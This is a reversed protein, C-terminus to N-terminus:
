KQSYVFRVATCVPPAKGDVLSPRYRGNGRITNQIKSDYAPFGTSKLQTVASVSGEASVCLKYSGMIKDVGARGIESQTTEDPVIEKEGAIRNADLATPTVIQPTAAAAPAVPATSPAPSTSAAPATPVPPSPAPPPPVAAPVAPTGQLSAVLTSPAPAPAPGAAPPVPAPPVSAPP